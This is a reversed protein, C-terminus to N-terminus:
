GQHYHKVHEVHFPIPLHRGSEKNLRASHIAQQYKSAIVLLAPAQMGVRSLSAPFIDLGPWADKVRPEFIVQRGDSSRRNRKCLMLSSDVIVVRLVWELGAGRESLGTYASNSVSTHHNVTKCITGNKSQEQARLYANCIELSLGPPIALVIIIQYDPARGLSFVLMCDM